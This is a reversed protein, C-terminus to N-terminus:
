TNKSLSLEAERSVLNRLETDPLSDLLVVGGRRNLGIMWNRFVNRQFLQLQNAEWHEQMILYISKLIRRNMSIFPRDLISSRLDKKHLLIELFIHPSQEDVQHAIYGLWWLRSVGNDRLIARNSKAFFHNLVRTEAEEDSDPRQRLFRRTVYIFCEVHCLYVWLREESAQHPTLKALAKYVRIANQADNEHLSGDMVDLIETLSDTFISTERTDTFEPLSIPQASYYNELRDRVTLRLEEISASTFYRIPRKM